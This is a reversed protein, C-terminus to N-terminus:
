KIYRADIERVRAAVRRRWATAGMRRALADQVYLKWGYRRWRFRSRGLRDELRLWARHIPGVSIVGSASLPYGREGLLRGVHAEVQHQGKPALQSRWRDLSSPDPHAYTSDQPYSLMADDYAVGLFACIRELERQPDVVLDEYRLDHRQSSPLRERMRNWSEEIAVWSSVASWSNGAWGMSVVSWAVARPDRVIHIM